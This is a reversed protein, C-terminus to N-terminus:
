VLNTHIEHFGVLTVVPFLESLRLFESSLDRNIM